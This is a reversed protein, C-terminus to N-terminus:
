AAVEEEARHGTLELFVEDLTPKRLAVDEAVIGADELARLLETLIAVRDRVPASVRRRDGDIEVEGESVRAVLGAVVPLEDVDNLVVDVRSGGIKSKLQEPTGDAIVRGHDIVSIQDALQDAEELYHTTLLVTTGGAVLERVVNWVENRNRPDQGTTPEDLFMVQPALIFSAALDLRRKMGGSYSKAQKGAAETLGFQELLEDAAALPEQM